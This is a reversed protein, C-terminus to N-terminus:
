EGDPTRTTENAVWAPREVTTAGLDDYTVHRTIQVRNGGRTTLYTIEYERVVGEPSVSATLTFNSADAYRSDSRPPGTSVVRYLTSGNREVTTEVTTNVSAFLAHVTAWGTTDGRFFTGQAPLERQETTGNQREILQRTTTENSWIAVDYPVVGYEEVNEGTVDYALHYQGATRAVRTEGTTRVVVTGDDRIVHEGSVTFSTNDLTSRHAQALTWADEVGDETLGPALTRADATSTTTRETATPQATTPSQTEPSATTTTPNGAGSCGALVVIVVLLVSLVVPGGSLSSSAM